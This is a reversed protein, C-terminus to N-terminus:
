IHRNGCLPCELLLFHSCMAFDIPKWMKIVAGKLQKYEYPKEGEKSHFRIKKAVEWTLSKSVCHTVSLPFSAMPPFPLPATPSCFLWAGPLVLFMDNASHGLWSRIYCHWSVRKLSAFQICDDHGFPLGLWFLLGVLWISIILPQVTKLKSHENCM